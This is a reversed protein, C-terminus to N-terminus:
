TTKRKAIGQQVNSLQESSLIAMSVPWSSSLSSPPLQEGNKVQVPHEPKV